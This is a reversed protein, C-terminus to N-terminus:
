GSAITHMSTLYSRSLDAPNSTRSAWTTFPKLTVSAKSATPEMWNLVPTAILALNTLISQREGTPGSVRGPQLHYIDLSWTFQRLSEKM